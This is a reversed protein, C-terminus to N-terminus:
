GREGRKKHKMADLRDNARKADAAAADAKQSASDASQSAAEAKQTAADAAAQAHQAATMAEDATTQAHEVAEQSACGGLLLPGGLLVVLASRGLLTRMSMDKRVRDGSSEEGAFI